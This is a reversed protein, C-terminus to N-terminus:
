FSNHSSIVLTSIATQRFFLLLLRIQITGYPRIKLPAPALCHAVSFLFLSLGPSSNFVTVTCKKDNIIIKPVSENGVSIGETSQRQQNPPLFPMRGTFVSHHPAPTTIQRSRPASKCLAICVARSIGSGSVTEQKLLIWMPKVKGTGTRSPLGPFLAAFRTRTNRERYVFANAMNAVIRYRSPQTPVPRCFRNGSHKSSSNQRSRTRCVLFCTRTTPRTLSRSRLRPTRLPWARM